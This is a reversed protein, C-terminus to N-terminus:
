WFSFKSFSISKSVLKWPSKAVTVVGNMMKKGYEKSPKPFDVMKRFEKLLLDFDEIHEPVIQYTKKQLILEFSPIHERTEPDELMQESERIIGSNLHLVRSPKDQNTKKFIYLLGTNCDVVFFSRIYNCILSGRLFCALDKGRYKDSSQSRSKDAKPNGLRVHVSNYGKNEEDKPM